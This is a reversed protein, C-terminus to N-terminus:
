QRAGATKCKKTSSQRSTSAEKMMSDSNEQTSQLGSTPTEHQQSVQRRQIRCKNPQIPNDITATPIISNLVGNNGKVSASMKRSFYPSARVGAVQFNHHGSLVKKDKDGTDLTPTNTVDYLVNKKVTTSSTIRAHKSASSADTARAASTTVPLKIKSSTTARFNEFSSYHPRNVKTSTQSSGTTTIKRQLNTM